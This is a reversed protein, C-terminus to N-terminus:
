HCRFLRASRDILPDAPGPWTKHRLYFTNGSVPCSWALYIRSETIDGVALATAMHGNVSVNRPEAVNSGIMASLTLSHSKSSIGSILPVFLEVEEGPPDWRLYKFPARQLYSRTEDFFSLVRVGAAEPAGAGDWVPTVGLDEARVRAPFLVERASEVIRFRIDFSSQTFLDKPGRLEMIPRDDTHLPRGELIPAAEAQSIFFGKLLGNPTRVQELTPNGTMRPDLGELFQKPLVIPNRGALILLDGGSTFESYNFVYFYPFAERLTALLSTLNEWSMSYIQFWQCLIGDEALRDAVIGYYERTFLSSAGSLWANSPENIIVDYRDPDGGECISPFGTRPNGSDPAEPVPCGHGGARMALFNRGDEVHLRVRTDEFVGGSVHRFFLRGAEVVDRSIEVVDLREVPYKAAEAATVGSGLGVVLVKRPAPHVQLPLHALLTQTVMDSFNDSADVKGNVFLSAAAGEPSFDVVSVTGDPGDRFYKVKLPDIAKRFEGQRWVQLVWSPDIALQTHFYRMDWPPSMGLSLGAALATGAVIAAARKAGFSLGILVISVGLIGLMLFFGGQAGLVPLALFTVVLSGLTTGVSNVASWAGTRAGFDELGAGKASPLFDRGPIEQTQLKPSLVDRDATLCKLAAPYGIGFGLAPIGAAATVALINAAHFAGFAGDFFDFLRLQLLCIRDLWPLSVAVATFVLAQASLFIAAPSFRRELAVFVPGGLGIGMLFVGLIFSFSYISSGFSLILVRNYLTELGLAALGSLLLAAGIYYPSAPPPSSRIPTDSYRLIPTDTLSLQPKESVGIGRYASVALIQPGSPLVLFAGLAALLNFAVALRTVGTAGLSELLIIPFLFAAAAAGVTNVAYFFGLARGRRDASNALYRVAAPFTGGMLFTPLLLLLFSSAARAFLLLTAHDATLGYLWKFFANGASFIFPSAAGYAAIGLELWAYLREPRAGPRDARKGLFFSGLGMGAMFGALSIGISVASSGFILSLSRMWLIQYLIASFGSFFGFLYLGNTM